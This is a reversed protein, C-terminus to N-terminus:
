VHRAVQASISLCNAVRLNDLDCNVPECSVPKWNGSKRNAGRLELSAIELKNLQSNAVGQSLVRLKCARLNSDSHFPERCSFSWTTFSSFNAFCIQTKWSCRAYKLIYTNVYVTILFALVRYWSPRPDSSQTSSLLRLAECKPLKGEFQDTKLFMLVDIKLLPISIRTLFYDCFIFYFLFFLIVIENTDEHFQFLICDLYDSSVFVM